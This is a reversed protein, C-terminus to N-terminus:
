LMWMRSNSSKQLLEANKSAPM